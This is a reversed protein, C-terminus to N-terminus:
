VLLPPCISELAVRVKANVSEKLVQGDFDIAIKEIDHIIDIQVAGSMDSTEVAVVACPM